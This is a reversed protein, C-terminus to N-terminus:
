MNGGGDAQSFELGSITLAPPNLWGKSLRGGEGWNGADLIFCVKREVLKAEKNTKSCCAALGWKWNYQWEGAIVGFEQLAEAYVM